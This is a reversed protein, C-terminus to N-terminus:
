IGPPIVCSRVAFRFKEQSQRDEVTYITTSDGTRFKDISFQTYLLMYGLQEFNCFRAEQSVIEQSVILLDYIRDQVVVKFTQYNSTEGSKSLVLSKRIDVEVKKPMLNVEFNLAGNSNVEYGKKELNKVLENFCKTVDGSIYNKIEDKAHQILMPEQNICPYYYNQNYCLYAINHAEKDEKFQFTRYLKPETYGGQFSIKDIAEQIPKELCSDLIGQPDQGVSGGTGPIIGSRALLFLAILAIIAVGAIIFITMQGKKRM